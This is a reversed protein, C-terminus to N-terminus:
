GNAAKVLAFANADLIGWGIYAESRLLVENNRKLDYDGGDPNGYRIVEFQINDAYGWRFAEFNGVLVWFGLVPCAM